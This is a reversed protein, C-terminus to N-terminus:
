AQSTLVGTSGLERSAEDCARSLAEALAPERGNFRQTPLPMSIAAVPGYPDSVVGGVASIGGTHEERDFAVRQARVVDLEAWLAKRSTITHETLATLEVPLLADAQAEPIAALLAKGNATCYLPFSAGIASVARLSHPAPIHDIFRVTAGDLISLDVTEELERHLRLLCHRVQDRLRGRTAAGLRAIGGGLRINGASAPTVFDEAELASVLRHVTSKPMGTMAALEALNVGDPARELARLVDAVRTVVQIGTKRGGVTTAEDV